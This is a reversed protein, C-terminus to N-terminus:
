GLYVDKLRNNLGFEFVIQRLGVEIRKNLTLMILVQVKIGVVVHSTNSMSECVRSFKRPSRLLCGQVPIPGSTYTMESPWPVLGGQFEM